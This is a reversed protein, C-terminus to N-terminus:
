VKLELHAILQFTSAVRLYSQLLFFDIHASIDIVKVPIAKSIEISSFLWWRTHHQWTARRFRAGYNGGAQAIQNPRM